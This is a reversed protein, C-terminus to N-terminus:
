WQTLMPPGDAWNTGNQFLGHGHITVQEDRTLQNNIHLLIRDGEDVYLTPPPWKGNVGTGERPQGQNLPDLNQVRTINWHYERVAALAPAAALLVAATLTRTLFM